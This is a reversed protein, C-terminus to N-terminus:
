GHQTELSLCQCGHCVPLLLVVLTGLPGWWTDWSEGTMGRTGRPRRLWWSTTNRQLTSRGTPCSPAM